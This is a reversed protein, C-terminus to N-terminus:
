KDAAMSTVKPTVAQGPQLGSRNGIVVMEGARLGSRVEIRNATEMGLAVTRRELRKGDTVVMVKGSAPSSNSDSSSGGEDLDVATVPVSLVQMARNLTLDVEAYMGPILILGPNPVDVETDMTRTALSLKNEFRKVQGPFTRNLTSVKVDVQQGIHVTSVASEPVPLILRLLTNESLRVLPMAQSQSATGAQIMSGKDAYRKTIVGDFPATVSTYQFMTQVKALEAKSVDVQQEAAALNSKAASVQADASVDKAQADDVEQQAILGKQSKMVDALRQYSIHAIQYNSQARRIEDNAQAVQAKSREVNSKARDLEDAMEPIELTALVQGEKVRDGIDVSIQKVYGAVKAMLEVEQYPRFEATLVLTHSLDQVSAEAVAVSPAQASSNQKASVKDQSGCGTVFVVPIFSLAAILPLRNKHSKM